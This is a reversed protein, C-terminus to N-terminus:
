LKWEQKVKLVHTCFHMGHEHIKKRDKCDCLWGRRQKSKAWLCTCSPPAPGDKPVTVHHEGGNSSTCLAAVVPKRHRFNELWGLVHQRRVSVDQEQSWVEKLAAPM